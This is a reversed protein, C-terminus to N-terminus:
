VAAPSYCSATNEEFYSETVYLCGANGVMRPHGKIGVWDSPIVLLMVWIGLLVAMTLGGRLRALCVPLILMGSTAGNLCATRTAIVMVGVPEVGNPRKWGGRNAFAPGRALTAM